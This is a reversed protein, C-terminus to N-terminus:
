PVIGRARLIGYFDRPTIIETGHYSGLSLLHGDGTVLYDVGAKLATALIPNDKPDGPVIERVQGLKVLHALRRIRKIRLHALRRSLEFKETLVRTLEELIYQSVYVRFSQNEGARILKECIGGFLSM